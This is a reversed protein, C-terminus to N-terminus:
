ARLGMRKFVGQLYADLHGKWVDDPLFLKFPEVGEIEVTARVRWTYRLGALDLVREFDYLKWSLRM